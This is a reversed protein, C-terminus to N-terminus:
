FKTKGFEKKRYLKWHNQVREFLAPDQARLEELIVIVADVNQGVDSDFKPFVQRINQREGTDPNCVIQKDSLDFVNATESSGGPNGANAIFLILAPDFKATESKETVMEVFAASHLDVVPVAAQVTLNNACAAFGGIFMTVAIARFMKKGMKKM